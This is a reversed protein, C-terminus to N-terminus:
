GAAVAGSPTAAQTLRDLERIRFSKGDISVLQCHHLLRDLIATALVEDGALVEPWDRIGKNSTVITSGREYRYSVLKFLLHAEKRDLAQFGLEDVILLAANMYKRRKARGRGAADDRKMRDVLEDANLFVVSFGNQVARVGLGAALHTKGVGPPGLLLVNEKRRVFECTSLLEVRGRDVGRQFPFDYSELTKGAPLGSLRMSTRVRREERFEKERELVLDLFAPLPLEERVGKEILEPLVSPAHEFGLDALLTRTRDLDSKEHRRM